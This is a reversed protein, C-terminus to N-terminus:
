RQGKFDQYFCLNTSAKKLIAITDPIELMLMKLNECHFSLPSWIAYLTADTSIETV